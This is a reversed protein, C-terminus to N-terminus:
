RWGRACMADYVREARLSSRVFLGGAIDATSRWSRARGRSFTRSSRALSMRESEDLLVFLYRHMLALVTVMLSPLGARGLAALIDAFPTTASLLIMALLCVSSKAVLSAFVAAGHPRLLSLAAVGLVFPELFLLRKALFGWPLRALGAALLLLATLALWVKAYPFVLAAVVVCLGAALKPGAALRHVPSDVRCHHELLGHLLSM